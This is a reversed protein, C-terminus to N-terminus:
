IECLLNVNGANVLLQDNGMVTLDRQNEKYDMITCALFPLATGNRPWFLCLPNWSILTGSKTVVACSTPLNDVNRV